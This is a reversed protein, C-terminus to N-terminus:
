KSFPPNKLAEICQGVGEKAGAQYYSRAKKLDVKGFVGKQYLQGMTYFGYAYGIDLMIEGIRRANEASRAVGKGQAFNMAIIHMHFASVQRDNGDIVGKMLLHMGFRPPIETTDFSNLGALCQALGDHKTMAQSLLDWGEEKLKEDKQRVLLLHLLTM